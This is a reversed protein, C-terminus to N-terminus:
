QFQTSFQEAHLMQISVYIEVEMQDVRLSSDIKFQVSIDKLHVRVILAYMKILASEQILALIKQGQYVLIVLSINVSIVWFDKKAAAFTRIYANEMDQVFLLIRLLYMGASLFQAIPLFIDMIVIVYLIGM